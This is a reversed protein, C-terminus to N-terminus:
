YYCIYWRRRKHFHITLLTQCRWSIIGGCWERQIWRYIWACEEQKTLIQGTHRNSNTGSNYWFYTDYHDILSDLSCHKHNQLMWWCSRSGVWCYHWSRGAWKMPMRMTVMTCNGINNAILIGTIMMIVTNMRSWAQIIPLMLVLWRAGNRMGGGIILHIRATHCCHEIKM